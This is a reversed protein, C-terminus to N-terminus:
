VKELRYNLVRGIVLLILSLFEFTLITIINELLKESGNLFYYIIPMAVLLLPTIAYCIFDLKIHANLLKKKKKKGFKIIKKDEKDFDKYLEDEIFKQTDDDMEIDKDGEFIDKKLNNEKVDDYIYNEDIDEINYRAENIIEDDIENAISEDYELFDNKDYYFDNNINDIEAKDILEMLDSMVYDEKSSRVFLGYALNLAEKDNVDIFRLVRILFKSLEYSFDVNLNPIIVFSIHLKGSSNKSVRILKTNLAVSNESILYNEVSTLINDIATMISCVDTKTLKNTKLYEELSVTGSVDYVLVRNEDEYAIQFKLVDEINEELLLKTEYSEINVNVNKIYLYSNKISNEEKIDMNANNLTM